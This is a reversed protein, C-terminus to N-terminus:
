ATKKYDNIKMLKEGREFLEVVKEPEKEGGAAILQRNRMNHVEEVSHGYEIRIQDDIWEDYIISLRLHMKMRTLGLEIMKQDPLYYLGFLDARRRRHYFWISEFWRSRYRAVITGFWAGFMGRLDTHLDGTLDRVQRDM